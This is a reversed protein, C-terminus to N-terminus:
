KRVCSGRKRAVHPFFSGKKRDRPASASAVNWTRYDMEEVRAVERELGMCTLNRRRDAVMRTITMSLRPTPNTGRNTAFRLSRSNHRKHPGNAHAGILLNLVPPSGTGM